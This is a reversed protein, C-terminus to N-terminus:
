LVWWGWEPTGCPLGLQVDETIRLSRGSDPGKKEEETYYHVPGINGGGRLTWQQLYVQSNWQKM